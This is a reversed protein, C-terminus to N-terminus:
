ANFQTVLTAYGARLTFGDTDNVLSGALNTPHVNTDVPNHRNTPHVNMDVPNHRNTPHVNM